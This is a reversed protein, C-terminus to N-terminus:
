IVKIRMFEELEVDVRTMLRHPYLGSAKSSFDKLGQNLAISAAM